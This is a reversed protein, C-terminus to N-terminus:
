VSLHFIFLNSVMDFLNSLGVIIIAAIAALRRLLSIDNFTKSLNSLKEPFIQFM